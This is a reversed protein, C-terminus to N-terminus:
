HTLARRLAVTAITLAVVAMAALVGLQAAVDLVGADDRVIEAMAENAWRHPTVAAVTHVGSPFLEIPVM